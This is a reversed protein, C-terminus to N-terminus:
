IKLGWTVVRGGRWFKLDQLMGTSQVRNKAPVDNASNFINNNFIRLGQLMGTLYVRNKTPVDNRHFTNNNFILIM